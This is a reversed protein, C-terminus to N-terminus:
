PCRQLEKLVAAALRRSKAASTMLIDMVVPRMGLEAIRPALHTDRWDLVFVAAIDAYLRAVGVPSVEHGLGRLMHHLPGKVPRNGILPSVAAVTARRSRLAARMGRLALIPGIRVFPNSPPLIVADSHRLAALAQPVPRARAAGRLSIRRVRGRARRRVLYEQFPLARSGAVAVFTRVPADSMPLVNVRVGYARCINRVVTTLTQGQRLADTRFIHTAFDGDGLQFWTEEYFRNLTALCRFTDDRIGWGHPQAATGALTYIVTDIDPSVHLGFFTEDDGTNVVVTLRESDVLSSLGQLFRAAGVGGALVAM